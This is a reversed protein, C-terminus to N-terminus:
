VLTRHQCCRQQHQVGDDGAWLGWSGTCKHFGWVSTFGGDVRPPLGWASSLRKEACRGKGRLPLPKQLPLPLLQQRCSDARMGSSRRPPCDAASRPQRPPCGAASRPQRRGRRGQSLDPPSAHRSDAALSPALRHANNNNDTSLADSLDSRRPWYWSLLCRTTRARLRQGQSAEVGREGM